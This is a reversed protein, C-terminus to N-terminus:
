SATSTSGCTPETRRSCSTIPSSSAIPERRAGSSLNGTNANRLVQMRCTPWDDNEIIHAWDVLSDERFWCELSMTALGAFAATTWTSDMTGGSYRKAGNADKIIGAAAVPGGNHTLTAGGPGLDADTAGGSMRFYNALGPTALIVDKYSPV